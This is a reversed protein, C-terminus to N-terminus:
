GLEDFLGNQLENMRRLAANRFPSLLLETEPDGQALDRTAHIVDVARRMTHAGLAATLGIRNGVIRAQEEDAARALEGNRELQRRALASDSELQRIIRRDSMSPRRAVGYGTTYDNGSYRDLDSM